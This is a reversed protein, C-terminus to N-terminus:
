IVYRTTLQIGFLLKEAKYSPIPSAISLAKPFILGIYEASIIFIIFNPAFASRIRSYTYFNAIPMMMKSSICSISKECVLSFEKSERSVSEFLVLTAVATTPVSSAFALINLVSLVARLTPLTM